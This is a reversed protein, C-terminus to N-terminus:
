FTKIFVKQFADWSGYCLSDYKMKYHITCDTFTAACDSKMYSLVWHIKGQNDQFEMTCLSQYLVCFNMFAHGKMHNGDFSPSVRPKLRNHTVLM